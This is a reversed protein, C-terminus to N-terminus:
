DFSESRLYSGCVRWLMDCSGRLSRDPYGCPPRSGKCSSHRYVNEATPPFRNRVSSPSCIVRSQIRHTQLVIFCSRGTLTSEFNLTVALAFRCISSDALDYEKRALHPSGQGTDIKLIFRLVLGPRQTSKACPPQLRSSSAVTTFVPGRFYGFRLCAQCIRHRIGHSQTLSNCPQTETRM